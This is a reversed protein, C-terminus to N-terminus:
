NDYQELSRNHTNNVRIFTACKPLDKLRRAGVYACVSRLGGTIEQLTNTLSGRNPILVEKGEAAKYDKLGGALEVNAKESSMGYHTQGNEHHGALMSGLMVFDAGAGFAKVVDAVYVCGGDSMIHGGLGHAADACEIVASLQPYGIGAILRTTCVAGSGIGVKVVDAGALILAETAEPTVVNGAIIVGSFIDRMHKVYDIFKEMYGNAVDLCLFLDNCFYPHGNLGLSTIHYNRDLGWSEKSNKPFCALMKNEEMTRGVKYNTVSIMNSSVIPIGYWTAASNKFTFARELEVESRSTITSRKPKLLVDDFDLKIDHEIHM